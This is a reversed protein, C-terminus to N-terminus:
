LNLNCSWGCSRQKSDAQPWKNCTMWTWKRKGTMEGSDSDFIYHCFIGLLLLRFNSFFFCWTVVMVIFQRKWDSFFFLFPFFLHQERPFSSLCIFNIFFCFICLLCGASFRHARVGVARVIFVKILSETYCDCRNYYLNLASTVPLCHMRQCKAEMSNQQIHKTKHIYKILIHHATSHIINLALTLHWM